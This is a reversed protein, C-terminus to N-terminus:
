KKKHLLEIYGYGETIKDGIGLNYALEQLRFDMSVEFKMMYSIIKDTKDELSKNECSKRKPPALLRFSYDKIGDFPMKNINEWKEVLDDFIFSFFYSNEPALYQLKGYDDVAAVTVPAITQYQMTESYNIDSVQSISEIKFNVSSKADGIEFEKNLLANNLFEETFNKHHFSIWFQIRPVIITMRDRQVFLRPVYLNSISFLNFKYNEEIPLSNDNLWKQYNEKNEGLLYHVTEALAHQYSIPLVNGHIGTNVFLVIKFRM